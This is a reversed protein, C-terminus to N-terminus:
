FYPVNYSSVNVGTGRPVGTGATKGRRGPNEYIDLRGPLINLIDPLGKGTMSGARFRYFEPTMAILALKEGRSDGDPRPTFLLEDVGDGNWDLPYARHGGRLVALQKGDGDLVWVEGPSNRPLHGLDVIIQKEDSHPYLRGSTVTAFHPGTIEWLAEGNGDIMALGCADCYTILLRTNQPNAQDLRMIHASDLHGGFWLKVTSSRYVWRTSGDHNLLAFGALIEDRGDGDLDFALPQHALMYGGPDSAKWLLEGREDCAYLNHYRDKILVDTARGKGSLNVFMLMDSCYRPIPFSRLEEGTRGDLEVLRTATLVIVDNKGNGNWDYIQCAVDYSRAKKGARPDGWRWLVSGDLRQASVATTHHNDRHDRNQASVLEVNGDGTLDGAVVWEGGYEADLPVTKWPPPYPRDERRSFSYIGCAEDEFYGSAKQPAASRFPKRVVAMLGLGTVNATLLIANLLVLPYILPGAAAMNGPSFAFIFVVGATVALVLLLFAYSKALYRLTLRWYMNYNELVLLGALPIWIFLVPFPGIRYLASLWGHQRHLNSSVAILLQLIFVAALAASIVSFLGVWNARVGTAGAVYNNINTWINKKLLILVLFLVLVQLGLLNLANWATFFDGPPM